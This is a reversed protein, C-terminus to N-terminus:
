YSYSIIVTISSLHTTLPVTTTANLPLGLGDGDCDVNIILWISFITHTYHLLNYYSLSLVCVALPTQKSTEQAIDKREQFLMLGLFIVFM